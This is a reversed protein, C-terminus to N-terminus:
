KRPRASFCIYLAHIVGPIFFLITLIINILLHRDCGGNILVAIPRRLRMNMCGCRSRKNNVVVVLVGNTVPSM